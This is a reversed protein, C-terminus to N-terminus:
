RNAQEQRLIERNAAHHNDRITRDAQHQPPIGSRRPHMCANIGCALACGGPHCLDACKDRTIGAVLAATPMARIRATFAEAAFRDAVLAAKYAADKRTRDARAAAIKAELAALAETAGKTGQAEALVLVGVRSECEAILGEAARAQELLMPAMPPPPVISHELPAEDIRATRSVASSM